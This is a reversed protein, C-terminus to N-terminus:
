TRWKQQSMKRLKEVVKLATDLLEGISKLMEWLTEVVM